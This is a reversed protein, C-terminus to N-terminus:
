GPIPSWSRAVPVWASAEPRDPLFFDEDLIAGVVEFPGDLGVFQEIQGGHMFGEVPVFVHRIPGVQPGCLGDFILVVALLLLPM